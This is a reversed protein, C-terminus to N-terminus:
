VEVVSYARAPLVHRLFAQVTLAEGPMHRRSVDIPIEALSVLYLALGTPFDNPVPVKRGKSIWDTPNFPVADEIASDFTTDAM